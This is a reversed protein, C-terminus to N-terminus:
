NDKDKLNKYISRIRKFKYKIGSVEKKGVSFSVINFIASIVVVIILLKLLM